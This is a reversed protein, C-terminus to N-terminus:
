VVGIGLAYSDLIVQFLAVDGPITTPNLGSPHRLVIRVTNLWIGSSPAAEIHKMYLASRGDLIIDEAEYFGDLRLNEIFPLSGGSSAPLGPVAYAYVKWEGVGPLVAPIGLAGGTLEIDVPITIDLTTTVAVSESAAIVGSSDYTQVSLWSSKDEFLHTQNNFRNWVGSSAKGAIFQPGAYYMSFGSTAAAPRVIQRGSKDQLSLNVVPTGTHSGIISTLSSQDGASLVDKFYIDLVDGSTNIYDLAIVISSGSIENSLSGSDVKNNLTNTSISYTYKTQAM